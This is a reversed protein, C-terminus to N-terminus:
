RAQRQMGKDDDKEILQELFAITEAGAYGEEDRSVDTLRGYPLRQRRRGDVGAAAGLELTDDDRQKM